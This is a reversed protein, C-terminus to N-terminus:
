HRIQVRGIAQQEGNTLVVTYSGAPLYGLDQVFERGGLGQLVHRAVSRGTIDLVDMRGQGGFGLPLAFHIVGEGPNPYITFRNNENKEHIGVGCDETLLTSNTSCLIDEGQVEVVVEEGVAFPGVTYTGTASATVEPAGGDNALVVSTGSGLA